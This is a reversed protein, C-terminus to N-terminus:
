FHPCLLDPLGLAPRQLFDCIHAMLLPACLLQCFSWLLTFPVHPASAPADTPAGQPCLNQGQLYHAEFHTCLRHSLMKILVSFLNKVQEKSATTAKPWLHRWWSDNPLASLHNLDRHIGPSFPHMTKVLCSNKVCVCSHFMIVNLSTQSGIIQCTPYMRAWEGNEMLILVAQM